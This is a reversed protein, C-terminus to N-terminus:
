KGRLSDFCPRCYAASNYEFFGPALVTSCGACKFHEPHFTKGLAVVHEGAGIEQNCEACVKGTGKHQYHEACVPKGDQEFFQGGSFGVGCVSCVFHEKHWTKGQAETYHTGPDIFQGCSACTVARPGHPVGAPGSAGSLARHDQECYPQGGHEFFTEGLPANCTNCVFHEPHWDRGLATVRRGHIFQACRACRKLTKQEACSVCIPNGSGDDCIRETSLPANCQACTFHENHFAKGLACIAPTVIAEGCKHCVKASM